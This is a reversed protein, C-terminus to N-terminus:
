RNGVAWNLNLRHIIVQQILERLQIQLICLIHSLQQNLGLALLNYYGHWLMLSTSNALPSDFVVQLVNDTVLV